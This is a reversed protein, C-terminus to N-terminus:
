KKHLKLTNTVGGTTLTAHVYVWDNETIKWLGNLRQLPPGVSPFNSDITMNNADGAWTGPTTGSGKIGEVVGSAYFQFEYGDFEATVNNSGSVYEQVYWRGTTMAIIVLDMKKKEVTKKCSFAFPLVLIAIFLYLKQM